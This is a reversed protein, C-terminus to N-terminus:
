SSFEMNWSGQDALSEWGLGEMAATYRITNYAKNWTSFTAPSFAVAPSAASFTWTTKRPKM